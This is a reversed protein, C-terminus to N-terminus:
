RTGSCGSGLGPPEESGFDTKDPPEPSLALYEYAKSLVLIAKPLDNIDLSALAKGPVM